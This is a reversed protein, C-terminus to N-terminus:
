RQLVNVQRAKISGKVLHKSQVHFLAKRLVATFGNTLNWKWFLLLWFSDLWRDFILLIVPNRVHPEWHFDQICDAISEAPKLQNQSRPGCAQSWLLERIHRGLLPCNKNDVYNKQNKNRIEM